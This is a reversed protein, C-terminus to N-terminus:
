AMMATGVPIMVTSSDCADRPFGVSITHKPQPELPCSESALCQLCHPLLSSASASAQAVGSGSGRAGWSSTDPSGPGTDSSPEQERELTILPLTRVLAGMLDFTGLYVAIVLVQAYASHGVFLALYRSWIVEYILGAM